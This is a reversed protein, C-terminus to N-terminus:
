RRPDLADRLGDALLNFGLVALVIAIGPFTPVWWAAILRDASEGIMNGWSPTPPQIGLGLFSLSSELLIVMGVMLGSMVVLSTLANPLLHVFLVRLPRAGLARAALVFERERLALVEARVLRAIMTWTTLAIIVVLSATGPSFFAVLVLLLFIRPVALLADVLRMLLSDVLEGAMAAAAGVTTGLLAALLVALLAVALSVRAGYVLRAWLDRGFRDSGLPFRRAEPVGGPPLNAVQAAPHTERRGLREVVLQDGHREAREALLRRGDRFVLPVRESGPPLYRGAVADFPLHPDAGAIWPAALAVVVLAGVLVAGAVLPPNVRLRRWARGAFGPAPLTGLSLEPAPEPPRPPMPAAPM